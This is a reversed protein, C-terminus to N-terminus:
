YKSGRRYWPFHHTTSKSKFLDRTIPNRHLQELYLFMHGTGPYAWFDDIIRDVQSKLQPPPNVYDLTDGWIQKAFTGTLTKQMAELMVAMADKQDDNRATPTRVVISDHIGTGIQLATQELKGFDMGQLIRYLDSKGAQRTFM